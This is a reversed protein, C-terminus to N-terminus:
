SATSCTATSRRSRRPGACRDCSAAVDGGTELRACSDFSVKVDTWIDKTGSGGRMSKSTDVLFIWDVPGLTQAHLAGALLLLVAALSLRM